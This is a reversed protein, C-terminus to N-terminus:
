KIVGASVVGVQEVRAIAVKNSLKRHEREKVLDYYVKGSCFIIREVKGDDLSSSEPILRKFRTGSSSMTLCNRICSIWESPFEIALGEWVYM